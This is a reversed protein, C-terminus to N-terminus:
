RATAEQYSAGIAEKILKRLVSRRYEKSATLDSSPQSSEVSLAAVHDLVSDTPVNGLLAREANEARLAKPGVATMGIRCRAIAGESAVSLCM